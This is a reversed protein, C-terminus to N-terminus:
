SHQQASSTKHTQDQLPLMEGSLGEPIPLASLGQFKMPVSLSLAGNPAESPLSIGTSSLLPHLLSSHHIPCCFLWTYIFHCISSLYSHRFSIHGPNLYEPALLSTELMGWTSSFGWGATLWLLMPLEWLTSVGM